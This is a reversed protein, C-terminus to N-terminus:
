KEDYFIKNTVTRARRSARLYQESFDHSQQQPLRIIAAILQLVAPDDPVVDVNLGTKGTALVNLDRILSARDWAEILVRADDPHLLGCRSAERITKITSPCRLEPYRGANMLQILQATWEVDALGGRGLKVHRSPDIGRPIREKEMRIKLMQIERIDHPSVGNAPYRFSNISAFWASAVEKDGCCYRARLLAQREWASGWREYYARYSEVSRAIAGQKGEPRLQIDTVIVPESGTSKLLALTEAAVRTAEALADDDTAGSAPEYVFIVDADSVYGIEQGGLRGLAIIAYRADHATDHQAAILAASIALDTIDSLAVRVQQPTTIGLTQGIAMRLMERRRLYRGAMAKSLPTNRRKLLAHLEDTLDAPSRPSLLGDDDLWVIAEPLTPLMQAIYRSTALLYALRPAVLASDRLLRMYWSTSGLKESVDRFANLGHDPETAQAMWGIMAPLVHRQISATRSLGQTLARLNRLASHPDKFGIASLRERAAHEELVVNDPDLSALSPLLPHYFMATHLQRVEHRIRQWQNELGQSDYSMAAAVRGLRSLPPIDHSRRLRQLQIRHELTRLFRYHHDLKGGTERGIYGGEVLASIADLTKAVRISPDTRGHVLQLLQVTFEIDRLGGPGLKLQRDAIERRLHAEVRQRMHRVSDVFGERNAVEWVLPNVIDMYRQSAEDDSDLPRAKLLAQFEWPQAWREYYAKHSEVTRVLPGNKGEPRLNTDLEWLAPIPGPSSIAHTLWSAITTGIRIVETDSVEPHSPEAIYIVDVDSVYNLERAGTKGMTIISFDILNASPIFRHALNLAAQLTQDVLQTILESATPVFAVPDDATLDYAAITILRRYYALRLEEIQNKETPSYSVSLPADPQEHLTDLLHPHVVLLDALASSFGMIAGLRHCSVPDAAIQSWLAQTAPTLSEVLRALNIKALEPDAVYQFFEPSLAPM